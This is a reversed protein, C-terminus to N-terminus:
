AQFHVTRRDLPLPLLPAGGGRVRICRGPCEKGPWRVRVVLTSFPCRLLRLRLLCCFSLSGGGCCFCLCRAVRRRLVALLPQEVPHLLDGLLAPMERVGLQAVEDAPDTLM